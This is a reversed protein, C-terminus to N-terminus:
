FLLFALSFFFVMHEPFVPLIKWLDLSFLTPIKAVVV